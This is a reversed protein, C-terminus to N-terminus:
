TIQSSVGMALTVCAGGRCAVSDPRRHSGHRHVEEEVVDLHQFRHAIGGGDLDPADGVVTASDYRTVEKATHRAEHAVPVNVCALRDLATRDAHQALVEDGLQQVTVDGLRPDSGARHTRHHRLQGRGEVTKRRAVEQHDADGAGVALRRDGLQEAIEEARGATRGVDHAGQGAGPGRGLGGLDLAHQRADAVTLLPVSKTVRDRHFDRAVREHLRPDVRDVKVHRDEGIQAVVMEIVVAGHLLVELGLGLEERGIVRQSTHRVCVVGPAALQQLPGADRHHAHVAGIGPVHNKARTVALEGPPAVPDRRRQGAPDVHVVREERGLRRQHQVGVEVGALDGGGHRVELRDRAAELDDRGRRRRLSRRLRHRPRCRLGALGGARGKGDQDVVGVGGRAQLNHQGLRAPEAGPRRTPHDRYEPTAAVTVPGLPGHHPLHGRPRLSRANKVESLGRSSSGSAMMSSTNAPTGPPLSFGRSKTSASRRMAM